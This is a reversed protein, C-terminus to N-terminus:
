FAPGFGIIKAVYVFSESKMIQERFMLTKMPRAIVVVAGPEPAPLPAAEVVVPPAPAPVAPELRPTCSGVVLLRLDPGSPLPGPPLLANRVPWAPLRPWQFGSHWSGARWVAVRLTPSVWLDSGPERCVTVLALVAMDVEPFELRRVDEYDGLVGRCIAQGHAGYPAGDRMSQRRVKVEGVAQAVGALDLVLDHSGDVRRSDRARRRRVDVRTLSLSLHVSLVLRIALAAAAVFRQSPPPVEVSVNGIDKGGQFCRSFVVTQVSDDTIANGRLSERLAVEVGLGVVRQETLPADDKAAGDLDSLKRKNFAM